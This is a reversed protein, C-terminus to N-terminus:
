VSETHIYIPPTITSGGRLKNISEDILKLSLAYDPNAQIYSINLAGVGVQSGKEIYATLMLNILHKVPINEGSNYVFSKSEATGSLAAISTGAM